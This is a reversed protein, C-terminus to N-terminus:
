TTAYGARSDNSAASRDKISGRGCYNHHSKGSTRNGTAAIATCYANSRFIFDMNKEYIGGKKMGYSQRLM